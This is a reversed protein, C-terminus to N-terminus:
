RINKAINSFPGAVTHKRLFCWNERGSLKYESHLSHAMKIYCGTRKACQGSLDLTLSHVMKIFCGARKARQSSLYLYFLLM